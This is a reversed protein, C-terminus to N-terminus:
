HMFEVSQVDRRLDYSFEGFPTIFQLFHTFNGALDLNLEQSSGDRLTIKAPYYTKNDEHKTPLFEMKKIKDYSISLGGEIKIEQKESWYPGLSIYSYCFYLMAQPTEFICGNKDVIIAKKIRSFDINRNKDFDIKEINEWNIREKGSETIGEIQPKLLYKAGTEGSYLLYNVLLKKDNKKINLNKIDSFFLPPTDPTDQLDNVFTLYVNPINRRDKSNMAVLSNLAFISKTGDTKYVTAIGKGIFPVVKKGNWQDTAVKKAFDTDYSGFFIEDVDAIMSRVEGLATPAILFSHFQRDYLLKTSIVSNDTFYVNAYISNNTQRFGEVEKCIRIYKLTNTSFIDDGFHPIGHYVFTSPSYGSIAINEYRLLLQPVKYVTNKSRFYAYRINEPMKPTKNEDKTIREILNTSLFHMGKDTLFSITGISSSSVEYDKIFVNEKGNDDYTRITLVKNSENKKQYLFEARQFADLALKHDEGDKKFSIPFGSVSNLIAKYEEGTTTKFILTGSPSFSIIGNENNQGNLTAISLFLTAM